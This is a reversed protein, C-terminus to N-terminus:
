GRNLNKNFGKQFVKIVEERNSDFLQLNTKIRNGRHLITIYNDEIYTTM